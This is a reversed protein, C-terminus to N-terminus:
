VSCHKKHCSIALELVHVPAVVPVMLCWKRGGAMSCMDSGMLLVFKRPEDIGKLEQSEACTSAMATSKNKLDMPTAVAHM